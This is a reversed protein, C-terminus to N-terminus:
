LSLMCTMGPPCQSPDDVLPPLSTFVADGGAEDDGEAGGSPNPDPASCSDGCGMLPSPQPSYPSQAAAAAALDYEEETQCNCYWYWQGDPGRYIYVAPVGPTYRGNATVKIEEHSTRAGIVAIAVGDPIKQEKIYTIIQGMERAIREANFQDYANIFATITRGLEPSYIRAVLDVYVNGFGLIGGGVNFDIAIPRWGQSLFANITKVDFIFEDVSIASRRVHFVRPLTLSAKELLALILSKREADSCDNCGLILNITSTLIYGFSIAEEASRLAITRFVNGLGAVTTLPLGEIGLAKLGAQASEITQTFTVWLEPKSALWALAFVIERAKQEGLGGISIELVKGGITIEVKIGEIMLDWFRKFAENSAILYQLTNEYAVPDYIFQALYEIAEKLDEWSPMLQAEASLEAILEQNEPLQLIGEASLTESYHVFEQIVKESLQGFGHALFAKGPAYPFYLTTSPGQSSTISNYLQALLKGREQRYWERWAVPDFVKPGDWPGLIKGNGLDKIRFKCPKGKYGLGAAAWETMVVKDWAVEKQGPLLVRTGRAVWNGCDCGDLLELQLKTELWPARKLRVKYTFPDEPRGFAKGPQDGLWVKPEEVELNTRQIFEHFFVGRELRSSKGSGAGFMVALKVREHPQPLLERPERVRVPGGILKPEGPKVPEPTPNPKGL